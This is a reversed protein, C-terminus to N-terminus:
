PKMSVSVTQKDSMEDILQFLWLENVKVNWPKMSVTMICLCQCDM